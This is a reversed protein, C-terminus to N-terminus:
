YESLSNLSFGSGANVLGASKTGNEALSSVDPKSSSLRMRNLGAFISLM